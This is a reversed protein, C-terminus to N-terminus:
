ARTLAAAADPLIATTSGGCGVRNLGDDLGAKVGDDLLREEGLIAEDVTPGVEFRGLSAAVQAQGLFTLGLHGRREGVHGVGALPHGDTTSRSQDWLGSNTQM